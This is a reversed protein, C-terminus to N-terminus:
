AVLDPAEAGENESWLVVKNRGADKALYMAKDALEILHNLNTDHDPLAALGISITVPGVPELHEGAFPRTEIADRVREALSRAEEPGVDLFILVFEEGGFRYVRDNERVSNRLVAAVEGLTVDGVKHGYDDNFRKLHDIDAMAVVARRGQLYLNALDGALDESLQLRNPLGTLVDEHARRESTDTTDAAVIATAVQSAMMELFRQDEASFAQLSCSWASLTGVVRTRVILPAIIGSELEPGGMQQSPSLGAHTGPRTSMMRQAESDIRLSHGAQAVRGVPGEGLPVPPFDKLKRGGAALAGAVVLENGRLLNLSTMDARTLKMAERLTASVVHDLSLTDTIESFVNHLANLQNNRHSLEESAARMAESEREAYSVAKQVIRGVFIAVVGIFSALAAVSVIVSPRLVAGLYREGQHRAADHDPRDSEQM